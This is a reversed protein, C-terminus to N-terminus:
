RLYIPLFFCYSPMTAGIRLGLYKASIPPDHSLTLWPL